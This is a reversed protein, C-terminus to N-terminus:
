VLRSHRCSINTFRRRPRSLSSSLITVTSALREPSTHQQEVGEGGGEGGAEANAEANGEGGGEGEGEAGGEGGGGKGGGEGGGGGGGEGEGEGGGGGQERDKVKRQIARIRWNDSSNQKPIQFVM